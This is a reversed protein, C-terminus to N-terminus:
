RRCSRRRGFCSRNLSLNTPTLQSFVAGMKPPVRCECQLDEFHRSPGTSLESQSAPMGLCIRYDRCGSRPRLRDGILRLCERGWKTSPFQTAINGILLPQPLGRDHMVHHMLLIDSAPLLKKWCATYVYAIIRFQFRWRAAFPSIGAGDDM